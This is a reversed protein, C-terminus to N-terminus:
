LLYIVVMKDTTNKTEVEGGCGYRPLGVITLDIVPGGLNTQIDKERCLM